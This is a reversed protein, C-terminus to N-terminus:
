AAREARGGVIRDRVDLADRLGDGFVFLAILTAGMAIAPFTFQWWFIELSTIADIGDTALLGWSVNPPQIGLGLFSLFAEALMVTPITLTLYVVVISLVNPLVHTKLIHANSAGMARAALIFESNKLSLVQGRVVRAMSLWYIAGIVAFFVWERHMLPEDLSARPADLLSIVSIVVFVFPLSYLVDVVRMMRRDTKGGELGAIAGYTVGIVLSVLAAALAALISTRSGWVIRALLDRGKTDTGLWAGTQFDGFAWTRLSVMSRDLPGLEWYDPRFETKSAFEDWPWSPEKPEGVLHMSKPSPIPLLPAFFSGIGITCLFLWSWWAARNARLRRWTRSAFSEGRFRQAELYLADVDRGGLDWRPADAM